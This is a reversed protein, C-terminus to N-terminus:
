AAPVEVAELRLKALSRRIHIEVPTAAPDYALWLELSGKWFRGEASRYGRVTYHRTPVKRGAVTRTEEGRPIVVVPYIKGDSWVQMQQAASPLRRRIAYIASVMDYVGAVEIEQQDRDEEGRWRYADWAELAHGTAADIRSGYQWFEGERSKPSTVMLETRLQGDGAPELTMVGHGEDPLFLGAVVGLLGGLDWRYHLEESQPVAHEAAEPAVAARAGATGVILLLALLPALRHPNMARVNRQLLARVPIM